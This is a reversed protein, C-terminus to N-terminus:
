GDDPLRLSEPLTPVPGDPLVVVDSLPARRGAGGRGLRWQVWCAAGHPRRYWGAPAQEPVKVPM